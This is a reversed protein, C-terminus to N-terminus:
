FFLSCTALCSFSFSSDLTFIELSSTSKITLYAMDHSFKDKTNGALIVCILSYNLPGALGRCYLSTVEGELLVLSIHHGSTENVGFKSYNVGVKQIQCWSKSFNWYLHITLSWSNRSPAMKVGIKLIRTLARIDSLSFHFNMITLCKIYIKKVFYSLVCVILM